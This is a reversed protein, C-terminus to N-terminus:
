KMNLFSFLLFLLIITIVWNITAETKKRKKSIIIAEIILLLPAIIAITIFAFVLGLGMPDSSGNLIIVYGFIFALLIAIIRYTAHLIQQKM